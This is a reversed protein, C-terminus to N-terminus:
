RSDMASNLSSFVSSSHYRASPESSSSALMSSGTKRALAMFRTCFSLSFLTASSMKGFSTSCLPSAGTM